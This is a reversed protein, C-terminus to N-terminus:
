KKFQSFYREIENLQLKSMRELNDIASQKAEDITSFIYDCILVACSKSVGDKNFEPNVAISEPIRVKYRYEPNEAPLLEVGVIEGRAIENGKIVFFVNDNLNFKKQNRLLGVYAFEDRMYHMKYIEEINSM